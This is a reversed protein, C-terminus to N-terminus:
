FHVRLGFGHGLRVSRQVRVGQGRPVEDKDGNLYLRAVPVEAPRRGALGAFAIGIGHVAAAAAAADLKLRLIPPRPCGPTTLTRVKTRCLETCSCNPRMGGVM